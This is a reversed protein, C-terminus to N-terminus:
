PYERIHIWWFDFNIIKIKLFYKIPYKYSVECICLSVEPTKHHNIKKPNSATNPPTTDGGKGPDVPINCFPILASRERYSTSRLRVLRFSTPMYYGLSVLAPLPRRLVLCSLTHSGVVVLPVSDCRFSLSGSAMCTHSQM